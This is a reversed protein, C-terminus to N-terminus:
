KLKEGDRKKFKLPEMNCLMAAHIFQWSQKFTCNRYGMEHMRRSSAEASIM